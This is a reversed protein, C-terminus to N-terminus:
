CPLLFLLTGALPRRFLLTSRIQGTLFRLLSISLHQGLLLRLPEPDHFFLRTNLLLLPRRRFRAQMLLLLPGRFQSAQLLFLPSAIRLQCPQLFLLLSRNGLCPLPLLLLLTRLFFGTLLLRLPLPGGSLGALLLLLHPQPLRLPLSLFRRRTLLLLLLCRLLLSLM